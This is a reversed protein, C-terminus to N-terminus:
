AGCGHRRPRSSFHPRLKTAASRSRRLIGPEKQRKADTENCRPKADRCRHPWFCSTSAEDNCNAPRRGNPSWEPVHVTGAVKAAGRSLCADRRTCSIRDALRWGAAHLQADHVRTRGPASQARKQCSASRAASWKWIDTGRRPRGGQRIAFLVSGVPSRCLQAPRVAMVRSRMWSSQDNDHRWDDRHATVPV